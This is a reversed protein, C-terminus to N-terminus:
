TANNEKKDFIGWPGWTRSAIVRDRADDFTYNSESVPSCFSDYYSRRYVQDHLPEYILDEFTAWAHPFGDFRKVVWGTLAGHHLMWDRHNEVWLYAFKYCLGGREPLQAVFNEAIKFDTTM